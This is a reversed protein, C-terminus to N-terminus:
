IITIIDHLINYIYLANKCGRNIVGILLGKYSRTDNLKILTLIAVSKSTEGIRPLYFLLPPLGNFEIHSSILLPSDTPEPLNEADQLYQSIVQFRPSIKFSLSCRKLWQM